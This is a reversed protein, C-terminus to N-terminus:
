DQLGNYFYDEIEKFTLCGERIREIKNKDIKIVTSPIPRDSSLGGDLILDVDLSSAQDASISDTGGSFNASSLALLNGFRNCLEIPIKHKPLRFGIWGNDTELVLTLPGPWYKKCLLEISKNWNICMKKVQDISSCLCSIPKNKERGKTKQLRKISKYNNPDCAVGYVTETPIIVLGGNSLIISAHHIIEKQPNTSDTLIIKNM